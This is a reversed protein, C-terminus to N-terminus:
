YGIFDETLREVWCKVSYSRTQSVGVQRQTRGVMLSAVPVHEARRALEHRVAKARKVERAVVEADRYHDPVVVEVGDRRRLSVM